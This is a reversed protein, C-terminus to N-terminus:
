ERIAEAFKRTTEIPDASDWIASGVVIIEPHFQLYDKVNELRIGGAAATGATNTVKSLTELSKLPTLGSRTYDDVAVHVALIDAGLAELEPVRKHFDTECMMDVVCKAGRSHCADACAKITADNTRSMVTVYSVGADLYMLSEVKGGDFIKIDALTTIDPYKKKLMEPATVGYRMTLPTGMEFIDVYKILEPMMEMLDELMVLDCALQLKAM